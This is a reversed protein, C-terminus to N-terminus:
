FIPTFLRNLDGFMMDVDCFGWFEYNAILDSFARGFFPRFDCLKHGSISELNLGTAKALRDIVEKRTASLVSVNSPLAFPPRTECIVIVGISTNLRCSNFFLESWKPWYGFYPILFVVRPIPQPSM